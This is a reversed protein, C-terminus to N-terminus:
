EELLPKWKIMFDEVEQPVDGSRLSKYHITWLNHSCFVDRWNKGYYDSLFQLHNPPINFEKGYLVIKDLMVDYVFPSHIDKIIPHCDIHINHGQLFIVFKDMTEKWTPVVKLYGKWQQEKPLLSIEPYKFYETDSRFVNDFYVPEFGKKYADRLLGFLDANVFDEYSRFPVVVDLDVDWPLL